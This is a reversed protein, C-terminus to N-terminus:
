GRGGHRGIRGGRGLAAVEDAVDHGGVDAGAPDGGGDRPERGLGVAVEVDAMGLRDGEVEADRALEAAAAVEPEVVGVGLLLLLLVDVRDLGVDAPEAVLPGAVDEVRGVVELLEVLPGDVQDLRPVREDVVLGGVLGALRAARQRRRARVRRVPVPGDVLVEVQERAHARALELVARPHQPGLDVHGRGVDVQAVRHQVPDHVRAVRPGAVGPADVGGVVHRVALRVRDLAHGVRQARELELDVPREVVPQDLVQRHRRLGALDLERPERRM